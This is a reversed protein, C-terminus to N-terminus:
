GNIENEEYTQELFVRKDFAGRKQVKSTRIKEFEDYEIKNFKLIALLVEMIEAIEEINNDILYENVEEKLKINLENIYEEDELIRVKAFEGNNEIIEPIRDRVLKNFQKM